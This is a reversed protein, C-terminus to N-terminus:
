TLYSVIPTKSERMKKVVRSGGDLFLHGLGCKLQSFEPRAGFVDYAECLRFHVRDM